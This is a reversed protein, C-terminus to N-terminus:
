IRLVTIQGPPSEPLPAVYQAAAEATIAVKQTDTIVTVAYEFSVPAFRNTLQLQNADVQQARNCCSHSEMQPNGCEDAMHICCSQEEESMQQGPLACALIPVSLVLLAMGLFVSRRMRIVTQNYIM